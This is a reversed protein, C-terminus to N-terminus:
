RALGVRATFFNAQFGKKAERHRGDLRLNAFCVAQWCIRPPASSILARAVNASPGLGVEPVTEGWGGGGLVRQPQWKLGALVAEGGLVTSM